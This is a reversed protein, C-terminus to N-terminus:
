RELIMFINQYVDEYKYNNFKQIATKSLEFYSKSKIAEVARQLAASDRPPILIGCSSDVMEQISALNTAIVPLGVSFAEIIVGPYGERYSPLILIDNQSLITNVNEHEIKGKYIINPHSDNFKQAYENEIMNGYISLQYSKDLTNFADLLEDIGKEKKIQGIYVFKKSYPHTIDRKVTSVKRTNPFWFTNKNIQKFYNVLYKTEFFLLDSQKFVYRLLYQKLKNNTNYLEISNGGFIRSVFKKGKIHAIVLLLPALFYMGNRAVNSFIIDNKSVVKLYYFLVYLYNKFFALKGEYINTKIINCIIDKEQCYNHLQEVLVTTGGHTKPDDTPFAGILLIKKKNM